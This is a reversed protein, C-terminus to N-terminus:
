LSLNKYNTIEFGLRRIKDELKKDLTISFETSHSNKINGSYSCPHILAEAICDDDLNRLGYEVTTSDMMGTYGVGLIYDNTKLNNKKATKKNVMTFTNLLLIKIINLCYAISLHKKASPVFYMQEYQTRIFPIEYEPALKCTLKFIEPIAHVHVHSDIHDPKAYKKVLEIQARFEQELENLFDKKHSNLIFSLYGKNFNGNKDTLLKCKTLPKGEIVNLHVGLGLGPCEPLIDNVAASFANGNACLSASTLFGNNYGDLVAKNYEKSMGFDDANLIFKKGM